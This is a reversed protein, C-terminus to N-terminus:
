RISATLSVAPFIVNDIGTSWAPSDVTIAETKYLSTRYKESTANKEVSLGAVKSNAIYSGVFLESEM